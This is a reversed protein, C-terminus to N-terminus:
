AARMGEVIRRSIGILAPSFFLALGVPLLVLGSAFANYWRPPAQSMWPEVHGDWYLASGTLALISSFVVSVLLFVGRQQLGTSRMYAVAGASLLMTTALLHIVPYIGHTEDISWWMLLPLTGYFAFTVLTWDQWIRELFQRFPHLSRTALAAAVAVIIPLLWARWGWFENSRFTQGFVAFQPTTM